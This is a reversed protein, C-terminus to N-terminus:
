CSGFGSLFGAGVIGAWVTPSSGNTESLGFYDGNGDFVTTLGADTYFRTNFVSFNAISNYEPATYVTTIGVTGGDCAASSNVFGSPTGNLYFTGVSGPTPTPTPTATPTPTFSVCCPGGYTPADTSAVVPSYTGLSGSVITISGGQPSTQFEMVPECSATSIYQYYVWDSDGIDQLNITQTQCYDITKCHSGNYEADAIYRVSRGSTTTYTVSGSLATFYKASAQTAPGIKRVVGNADTFDIEYEGSTVSSSLRWVQVPCQGIDPTPSPTPSQTPTPTPGIPTATPTPTPPNECGSPSPSGISIGPAVYTVEHFCINSFGTYPINVNQTNGSCDIWSVAPIPFYSEGVNNEYRRGICPPVTPTPTPTPTPTQTPTPTPTVEVTDFDFGCDLLDATTDSYYAPYLKILEVTVVDNNTLNFGSIKNIRYRQNKIFIIDNLKISKYEYSDFELDITLKRNEEWYLSDLYTKWYSDFASVGNDLGLNAYTYNVYDNSFHLDRATGNVAPLESINSITSYSGTVNVFDTSIGINIQSGSPLTNTVKYGIRPKFAFSQQKTNEFKYLHPLVFRTNFDINYTPVGDSGTEFPVIAGGLVVPSFFDGIKKTGQSINNDSLLRLTGYQFGPSNDISLKSFRDADDANKLLIEKQQEDITHSLSIRKATEYKQTWDKFQGKSIWTDFTDIEITALETNSPTLVLNFQQILGKIVDISKLKPNWQLAMDVTAGNYTIPALTCEFKGNSSILTLNGPTGSGLEKNYEVHLWVKNGASLQGNFSVTQFFPGLGVYDAGYREEDYDLEVYNGPTNDTGYRLTLLVQVTVDFRNFVPNFYGIQGAFTYEGEESVTYESVGDYKNQPDFIETQQLVNESVGETITQNSNPIAEFVATAGEGIVIGLNENPKNLIYMQNFDDTETFSGTYRYDVQDFLVDLVDKVKIAPLFQKAQLPTQTSGISGTETGLQVRPINPYVDSDTRGYDVVPYFISGSLLEDNWSGTINNPSLIHNYPEWNANRVLKNSINDKFRVVSDSIQCKYTIFGSEDTVIETLQFQGELLTEGDYIIYGVISNYLAPIDEAGIEYGHKFFRNNGKTGPLDFTQSGVGFFSGIDGNEVASVDLRLPINGDIDLDYTVGEYIVRVIIDM